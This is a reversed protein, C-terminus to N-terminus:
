WSPHGTPPEGLSAKSLIGKDSQVRGSTEEKPALTEGTLQDKHSIIQQAALSGDGLPWASGEDGCDMGSVGSTGEPFSLALTGLGM